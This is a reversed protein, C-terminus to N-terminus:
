DEVEQILEIEKIISDLSISNQLKLRAEKKILEIAEDENLNNFSEKTLDLIMSWKSFRTDENNGLNKVNYKDLFYLDIFEHAYNMGKGVHQYDIVLKGYESEYDFKHMQDELIECNYMDKCWATLEITKYDIRENAQSEKINQLQKKYEKMAERKNTFTLNDYFYPDNRNEFSDEKIIVTYFKPKFNLTKM